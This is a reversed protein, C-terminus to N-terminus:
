SEVLAQPLTIFNIFDVKVDLGKDQDLSFEIGKTFFPTDVKAWTEAIIEAVSLEYGRVTLYRTMRNKLVKNDITNNKGEQNVIKKLGELDSGDVIVELPTGIRFKMIDAVKGQADAISMEHTTFTGEIQQRGVEEFIKEGVRTLHDKDAINNLKFTLYPAEQDAAQTTQAAPPNEQGQPTPNFQFPQPKPIKVPERKIGIEKAWAESAEKPILAEILQKNKFDACVVRVNFGKQRGLKRKYELNKINRGFAFIKAKSRDYLARPKTIVLKDIEIYAILGSDSIIRQIIEWYSDDRASNKTGALAGKDQAFQSLVPFTEGEPLRPDVIIQQTSENQALINKIVQDIPLNLNVPGGFYPLDILLATQDRGELKVTRDTENMEIHDTDAFGLFIINDNSPKIENLANSDLFVKKRDELYITVGCSRLLRPDIPFNKFDLTLDFTDAQTYDNINVRINKAFCNIAYEKQFKPDTKNGFDEFRCRLSVIAQPFYVGM